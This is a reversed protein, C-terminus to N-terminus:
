FPVEKGWISNKVFVQNLKEKGAETGQRAEIFDRSLVCIPSLLSVKLAQKRKNEKVRDRFPNIVRNFDCIAIHKKERMKWFLIKYGGTKPGDLSMAQLSAGLASRCANVEKLTNPVFGLIPGAESRFM